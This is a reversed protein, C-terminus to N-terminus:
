EEKWMSSKCDNCKKKFFTVAAHINKKNESFIDNERFHGGRKFTREFTRERDEYSKQGQM